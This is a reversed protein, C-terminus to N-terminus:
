DEMFFCLSFHFFILYSPSLYVSLSVLCSAIYFLAWLSIDFWSKISCCGSRPFPYSNPTPCPLPFSPCAAWRYVSVSEQSLLWYPKSCFAKRPSTGSSIPVSDLLAHRCGSCPEVELFLALTFTLFLSLLWGCSQQLDTLEPNGEYVPKPIWLFGLDCREVGM